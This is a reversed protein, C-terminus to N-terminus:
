VVNPDLSGFVVKFESKGYDYKSPEVRLFRKGTNRVETLSVMTWGLQLVFTMISKIEEM